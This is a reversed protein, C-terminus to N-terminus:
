EIIGVSEIEFHEEYNICEYSDSESSVMHGILKLGTFKTGHSLHENLGELLAAVGACSVYEQLWGLDCLGGKTCECDLTHSYGRYEYHGSSVPVNGGHAYTLVWERDEDPSEVDPEVSVTIQKSHTSRNM